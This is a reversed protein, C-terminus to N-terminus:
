SCTSGKELRQTRRDLCDQDVYDDLDTTPRRQEVLAAVGGVQFGRRSEHISDRHFGM